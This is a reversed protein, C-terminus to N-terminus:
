TAAGTKSEVSSAQARTVFKGRVLGSPFDSSQYEARLSDSAELKPKKM